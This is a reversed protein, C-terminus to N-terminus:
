QVLLRLYRGYAHLSDAYNSVSDLLACKDFFWQRDNSFINEEVIMRYMARRVLSFKFKDRIM